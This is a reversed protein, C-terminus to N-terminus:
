ALRRKLEKLRIRLERQEKIYNDRATVAEDWTRFSGVYVGQVSVEVRIYRERGDGKLRANRIRAAPTKAGKNRRSAGAAVLADHIRDREIRAEEPTEAEILRSKTRGNEWWWVRARRRGKLVSWHIGENPDSKCRPVSIEPSTAAPTM